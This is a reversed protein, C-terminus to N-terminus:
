DLLTSQGALYTTSSKGKPCRRGAYLWLFEGLSVKAHPVHCLSHSFFPTFSIFVLIIPLNRYCSHSFGLQEM